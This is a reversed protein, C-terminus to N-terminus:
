KKLIEIENLVSEEVQIAFAQGEKMPLDKPFLKKPLFYIQNDSDIVKVKDETFANSIKGRIFVEKSTEAFSLNLCFLLLLAKM